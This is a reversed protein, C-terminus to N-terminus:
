RLAARLRSLARGYRKYAAWKRIGLESAASAPDRSDILILRLILRDAEPLEAFARRVDETNETHDQDQSRPDVISALLSGIPSMGQECPGFSIVRRASERQRWDLM